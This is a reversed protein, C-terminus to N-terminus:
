ITNIVVLCKDNSSSFILIINWITLKVIKFEDSFIQEM